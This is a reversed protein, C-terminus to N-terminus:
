LFVEKDWWTEASFLEGFDYEEFFYKYTDLRSFPKINMVKMFLRRVQYEFGKGKIPLRKFRLIDLYKNRFIFDGLYSNFDGQIHWLAVRKENLFDIGGIRKYRFPRLNPYYADPYLPNEFLIYDGLGQQIVEVKDQHIAGTHLLHRFLDQDSSIIERDRIGAWIKQADEWGLRKEWAISSYETIDSAFWNLNEEYQAFWSRDSIVTLAPCGQLIFTKGDMKESLRHPCENFVIDGDFHVLREGSFCKDIVLWRLFCKKEYEGFQDLVGYKIELESFIKNADHLRYGLEELAAKYNDDILNYGKLFLVDIETKFGLKNNRNGVFKLPVHNEFQTSNTKCWAVIVNRM